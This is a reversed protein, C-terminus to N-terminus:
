CDRVLSFKCHGILWGIQMHKLHSSFPTSLAFPTSLWSFTCLECLCMSLNHVSRWHQSDAARDATGSYLTYTCSWGMILLLDMKHKNNEGTSIQLKM